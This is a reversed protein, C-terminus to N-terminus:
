FLYILLILCYSKGASEETFYYVATFAVYFALYALAILAGTTNMPYSAVSSFVDFIGFLMLIAGTLFWTLKKEPCCTAVIEEAMAKCAKLMLAIWVCKLVNRGIVAITAGMQVGTFKEGFDYFIKVKFGIIASMLLICGCCIATLIWVKKLPIPSKIEKKAKKVPEAGEEASEEEVTPTQKQRRKKEIIGIALWELAWFIATFIETFMPRFLGYGAWDFLPSIPKALFPTIAVALFYVAFRIANEIFKATFFKPKTM